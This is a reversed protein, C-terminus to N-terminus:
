VNGEGEMGALITNIRDLMDATVVEGFGALLEKRVVDVVEKRAESKIEEIDTRPVLELVGDKIIYKDKKLREIEAKQRNILDLADSTLKISCMGEKYPCKYCTSTGVAKHCELAKLIEADTM